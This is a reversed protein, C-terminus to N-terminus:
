PRAQAARRQGSFRREVSMVKLTGEIRDGSVTGTLVYPVFFRSGRLTFSDGEMRGTARVSGRGHLQATLESGNQGIVLYGGRSLGRSTQWQLDWTGEFRAAPPSAPAPPPAPAIPVAFAPLALASCANRLPRVAAHRIFDAVDGRACEPFMPGHATAAMVLHTSRRLSGALRWAAQAPTVPDLAGSLILTPVDGAFPALAGDSAPRVPWTACSALLKQAATGLPTLAPRQEHPRPADEACLVSLYMGVPFESLGARLQAIQAAFPQLGATAATAIVMPIYQRSVSAQMMALLLYRFLDRTVVLQASRADPEGAALRVPASALQADLALLQERLRPYAARCASDGACDDLVQALQADAAQAGASIINYDLPYAARLIASRVRRPHDRMYLLAVRVGYSVGVLNLQRHGLAGRLEELDAVADASTYRNLDARTRLEAACQRVAPLDEIARLLDVGNPCNLPNSRGTGRQDLFIVEREADVSRLTPLVRALSEVGSEGPGGAIYLIPDAPGGARGPVVVFRLSLRRGAPRTRDEAVSLTGCRAGPPAGEVACSDSFTLRETVPAAAAAGGALWLFLAGFGAVGVKM